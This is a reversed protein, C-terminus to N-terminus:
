TLCLYAFSTGTVQTEKDIHARFFDVLSEVDNWYHFVRHFEDYTQDDYKVSYLYSPIIEIIDMM